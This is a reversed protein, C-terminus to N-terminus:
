FVMKGKLLIMFYVRKLKRIKRLGMFLHYFIIVRPFELVYIHRISRHIFDNISSTCKCTENTDYPDHWFSLLSLRLMGSDIRKVIGKLLCQNRSCTVASRLLPFDTHYEQSFNCRVGKSNCFETAIVCYLKTHIGKRIWSNRYSEPSNIRIKHSMSNSFDEIDKIFCTV